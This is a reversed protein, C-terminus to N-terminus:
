DRPHKVRDRLAMGQLFERPEVGFDECYIEVLRASFVALADLAGVCRAGDEIIPRMAEGVLAHDVPHGLAATALAIADDFSVSGLNEFLSGPVPPRPRPTGRRLGRGFGRFIGM